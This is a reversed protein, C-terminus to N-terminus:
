EAFSSDVSDLESLMDRTQTDIDSRQGTSFPKLEENRLDLLRERIHDTESTLPSSETEDDISLIECPGAELHDLRKCRDSV